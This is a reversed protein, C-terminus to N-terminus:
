QRSEKVVKRGGEIEVDIAAPVHLMAFEMVVLCIACTIATILLAGNSILLRRTAFGLRQRLSQVPEPSGYDKRLPWPHPQNTLNKM